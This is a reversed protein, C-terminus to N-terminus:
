RSAWASVSGAMTSPAIEAGCSTSTNRMSPLAPCFSMASTSASRCPEASSPTRVSTYSEQGPLVTVKVVGQQGVPIIGAHVAATALNSDDTYVDSGWISGSDSGTVQFVFSKGVEARFGTMTGPDPQANVPAKGVV